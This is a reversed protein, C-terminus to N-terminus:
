EPTAHSGLLFIIPEQVLWRREVGLKRRREEDKKQSRDIM